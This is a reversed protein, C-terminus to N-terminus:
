SKYGCLYPYFWNKKSVKKWFKLDKGLFKLDKKWFKLDKESFKYDNKTV